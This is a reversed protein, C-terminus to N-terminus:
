PPTSESFGCQNLSGVRSKVSCLIKALSNIGTPNQLVPLSFIHGENPKRHSHAIELCTCVCGKLLLAESLHGGISKLWPSSSSISSPTLYLPPHYNWNELLPSDEQPKLGFKSAAIWSESGTPNLEAQNGGIFNPRCNLLSESSRYIQLWWGGHIFSM